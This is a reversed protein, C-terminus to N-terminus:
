TFRVKGVAVRVTSVSNTKVDTLGTWHLIFCSFLIKKKGKVLQVVNFIFLTQM